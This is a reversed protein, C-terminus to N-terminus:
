DLWEEYDDDDDTDHSQSMRGNNGNRRDNTTEITMLLVQKQLQLQTRSRKQSSAIWPSCKAMSTRGDEVRCSTAAAPERASVVILLLHNVLFVFIPQSDFPLLKTTSLPLIPSSCNAIPRAAREGTARIGSLIICGDFYNLNRLMACIIAKCLAPTGM